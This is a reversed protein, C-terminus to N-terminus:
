VMEPVNPSIFLDEKSRRVKEMPELWDDEKNRYGLALMSISHLGKSELDLLEDLEDNKFGEMPTSDVEEVAAASLGFGLAIYAQKAAWSQQDEISRSAVGEAMDRLPQLESDDLGRIEKTLKIYNEIREETVENWAAFVLLDSSDAVQSQGYAIPLIEKKLEQEKVHIVTFPQIGISTPAMRIAELINDLKEEPVEEGNMKKTAYRWNLANQLKM